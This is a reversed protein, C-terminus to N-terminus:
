CKNVRSVRTQGKVRERYQFFIKMDIYAHISSRLFVNENEFENKWKKKENKCFWKKLGSVFMYESFTYLLFM